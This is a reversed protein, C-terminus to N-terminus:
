RSDAENFIRSLEFLAKGVTQVKGESVPTKQLEADIHAELERFRERPSLCTLALGELFSEQDRYPVLKEKKPHIATIKSGMIFGSFCISLTKRKEMMLVHLWSLYVYRSDRDSDNLAHFSRQVEQRTLKTPVISPIRTDSVDILVLAEALSLVVMRVRSLLFTFIM